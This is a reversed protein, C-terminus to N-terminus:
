QTPFPGSSNWTGPTLPAPPAQESGAARRVFNRKVGPQFDTTQHRGNQGENHTRFM